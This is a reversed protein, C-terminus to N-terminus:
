SDVVIRTNTNLKLQRHYIEPKKYVERAYVCHLQLGSLWKTFIKLEKIEVLLYQIKICISM